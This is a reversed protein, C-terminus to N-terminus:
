GGAEMSEAERAKDARDVEMAQRKYLRRVAEVLALHRSSGPEVRRLPGGIIQEIAAM